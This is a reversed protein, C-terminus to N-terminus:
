QGARGSKGGSRREQTQPISFPDTIWTTATMLRRQPDQKAVLDADPRAASRLRRAMRRHERRCYLRPPGGCDPQEIIEVCGPLACQQLPPHPSNPM